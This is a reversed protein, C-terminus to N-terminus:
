PLNLFQKLFTIIDDVKTVLKATSIQNWNNVDSVNSSVRDFYIFKSIYVAYPPSPHM